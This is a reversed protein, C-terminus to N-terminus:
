MVKRTTQGTRDLGSPSSKRIAEKTFGSSDELKNKRNVESQLITNQEELDTVQEELGSIKSLSEEANEQMDKQTQTGALMVIFLIVFLVDLLPTLNIDDSGRSRRGRNRM